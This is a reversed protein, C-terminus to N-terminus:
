GADRLARRQEIYDLLVQGKRFWEGRVRLSAFHRHVIKETQFTGPEAHLLKAGIPTDTGMKQMRAVLSASYGIKIHEGADIFYVVGAGPSAREAEEQTLIVDLMRLADDATFRKSRGVQLYFPRGSADTPNERLWELLWRKSRHLRAAIEAETYLKPIM